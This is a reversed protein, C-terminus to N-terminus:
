EGYQLDGIWNWAFLALSVRGFLGGTDCYLKYNGGKIKNDQWQSIQHWKSSVVPQNTTPFKLHYTSLLLLFPAFPYSTLQLFLLMCLKVFKSSYMNTSSFDFLIIHSFHWPLGEEKANYDEDGMKSGKQQTFAVLLISKGDLFPSSALGLQLCAWHVHDSHEVLILEIHFPSCYITFAMCNCCQYM